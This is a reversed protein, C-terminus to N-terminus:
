ELPQRETGLGHPTYWDKKRMTHVIVSKNINMDMGNLRSIFMLLLPYTLAELDCEVVVLEDQGTALVLTVRTILCTIEPKSLLWQIWMQQYEYGPEVPHITVQVTAERRSLKQKCILVYTMTTECELEYIVLACCGM